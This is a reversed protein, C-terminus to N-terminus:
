QHKFSACLGWMQREHSRGSLRLQGTMEEV